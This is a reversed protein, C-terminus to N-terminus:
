KLITIFATAETMRRLLKSKICISPLGVVGKFSKEDRRIASVVWGGNNAMLICNPISDAMPWPWHSSRSRLATTEEWWILVM